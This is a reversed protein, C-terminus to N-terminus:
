ALCILTRAHSTESYTSGLSPCSVLRIHREQCYGRIPHYLPSTRPTIIQSSENRGMFSECAGQRVQLILQIRLSGRLLTGLRRPHSVPDGSKLPVMKLAVKGGSGGGSAASATGLRMV